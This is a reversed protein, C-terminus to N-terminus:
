GHRFGPPTTDIPDPGLKLYKERLRNWLGLRSWDPEDRIRQDDTLFPHPLLFTIQQEDGGNFLRLGWSSPTGDPSLQRYLEARHTQRLRAVEAPADRHVGICIHFHWDRFDVTAYGDLMTIRPKRPPRIEWAAGQILPGIHIHEWEEFCDEFIRLLTQEEAPLAFVEVSAGGEEVIRGRAVAESAAVVYNYRGSRGFPAHIKSARDSPDGRRVPANSM